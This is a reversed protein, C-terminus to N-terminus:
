HGDEDKVGGILRVQTVGDPAMDEIVELFSKSVLRRARELLLPVPSSPENRRFFEAAAEIARVADERSGIAGVVMAARATEAGAAPADPGSAVAPQGQSHSIRERLLTDIQVLQSLLPDVDPASEYGSREQMTSVIGRLADIAEAVGRQLDGLQEAPTGELAAHIQAENPTSADSEAAKLRGTAIDLARLSVPGIQPHTVFPARRLADVIAMRDALCNLANKRLIADDDILPYVADWYESLWRHALSLTGLFCDLGDTRLVAASLHALLRIDRSKALAQMSQDRIERWDTDTSLPVVSGFIRYADFGALLQTDELSEGCPADTSVPGALAAIDDNM